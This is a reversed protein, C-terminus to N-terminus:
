PAPKQKGRQGTKKKSSASSAAVFAMAEKFLVLDKKYSAPNDHDLLIWETMTRKGMVLLSIEERQLLEGIREQPLKLAVGPHGGGRTFAFIKKGVRFTVHTGTKQETVKPLPALFNSLAIVLEPDSMFLKRQADAHLPM